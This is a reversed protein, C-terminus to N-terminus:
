FSPVIAELGFGILYQLMYVGITWKFATEAKDFMFSIVYALTIFPFGFILITAVFVSICNVIADIQLIYVCVFLMIQPIAYIIIDSLFLGIFYSSSRMGAFNLLYRLKEERDVVVGWSYLGASLTIGLVELLPFAINLVIKTVNPLNLGSMVMQIIIIYILPFIFPNMSTIIEKSSGIYCQLRRVV